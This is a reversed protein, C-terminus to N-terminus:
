ISHIAASANETINHRETKNTSSNGLSFWNVTMLCHCIADFIGEASIPYTSTFGAVNGSFLQLM